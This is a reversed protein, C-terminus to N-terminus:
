FGFVRRVWDSGLEEIMFQRMRQAEASQSSRLRHLYHNSKEPSLSSGQGDALLKMTEESFFSFLYKAEQFHISKAYGPDTKKIVMLGALSYVMFEVPGTLSDWMQKGFLQEAELDARGGNIYANWEDWIYYVNTEGWLKKGTSPDFYTGADPEGGSATQVYQHFRGGNGEIGRLEKPIFAALQNRKASTDLLYSAGVYPIFFGSFDSKTERLYSNIGHTLEHAITGTPENMKSGKKGDVYVVGDELPSRHDYIERLVPVEKGTPITENWKATKTVPLSVFHPLSPHTGACAVFALAIFFFLVRM